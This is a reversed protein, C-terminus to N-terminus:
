TLLSSAPRRPLHGLHWATISTGCGEGAFCDAAAGLPDAGAAAGALESAGQRATKGALAVTAAAGHAHSRAACDGRRGRRDRWGSISDRCGAIRDRWGSHRPCGSGRGRGRGPLREAGLLRM